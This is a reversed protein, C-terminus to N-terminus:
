KTHTTGLISVGRLSVVVEEHTTERLFAYGSSLPKSLVNIEVLGDWHKEERISIDTILKTSLM